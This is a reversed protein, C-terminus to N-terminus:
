AADDDAPRKDHRGRRGARDYGHHAGARPRGVGTTAARRYTGLSLLERIMVRVSRPDRSKRRHGLNTSSAFGYRARASNIAPTATASTPSSHACEGAAAILTGYAAIPVLQNM